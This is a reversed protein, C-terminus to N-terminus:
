RHVEHKLKLLKGHEIWNYDHVNLKNNKLQPLNLSIFIKKWIKKNFGLIQLYLFILFIWLNTNRTKFHYLIISTEFYEHFIIHFIIMSSELFISKLMYPTSNQSDM